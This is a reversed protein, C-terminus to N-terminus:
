HNRGIVMLQRRIREEYTHICQQEEARIGPIPARPGPGGIYSDGPCPRFEDFFQAQDLVRYGLNGKRGNYGPSKVYKGNQWFGVKEV